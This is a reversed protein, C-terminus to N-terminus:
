ENMKHDLLKDKLERNEAQLNQIVQLLQQNVQAQDQRMAEQTDMYSKLLENAQMNSGNALLSELSAVKTRLREVESFDIEQPNFLEVDADNQDHEMIIQNFEGAKAEEEEAGDDLEIVEESDNRKLKRQDVGAAEVM